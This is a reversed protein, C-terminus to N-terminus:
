TGKNASKQYRIILLVLQNPMVVDDEIKSVRLSGSYVNRQNAQKDVWDLSWEIPKFNKRPNIFEINYKYTNLPSRITAM